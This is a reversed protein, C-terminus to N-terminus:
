EGAEAFTMRRYVARTREVDAACYDAIQDWEGAQAMPWVDAGTPGDGKGPIGLVRCLRDLSIRDRDGAWQTMTDYVRDSWPKVNRPMWYPPKIGHVICRKHLFPLDFGVMNHGCVIPMQGKRPDYLATMQAVWNRLLAGEHESTIGWSALTQVPDDGVAWSICVVQGFAADLGTRLIAEDVLAPKEEAEWKAITEAKKHTAPPKISRTLEERLWPQQGPITEIDIVVIPATM